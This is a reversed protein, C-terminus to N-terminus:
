VVVEQAMKCMLDNVSVVNAQCKRGESWFVPGSRDQRAKHNGLVVNRFAHLLIVLEVARRLDLADPFADLIGTWQTGRDKWRRPRNM